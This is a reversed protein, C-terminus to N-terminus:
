GIDSCDPADERAPSMGFTAGLLRLQGFDGPGMRDPHDRMKAALVCFASFTEVDMGTLLGLEVLEPAYQRWVKAGTGTPWPLNGRRQRQSPSM